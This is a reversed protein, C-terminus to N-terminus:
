SANSNSGGNKLRSLFDSTKKVINFFFKSGSNYIKNHLLSAEYVNNIKCKDGDIYIGQLRKRIKVKLANLRVKYEPVRKVMGLLEDINLNNKEAIKKIGDMEKKHLEAEQYLSQNIATSLILRMDPHYKKESVLGCDVTQLASEAVIIAFLSPIFELKHHFPIPPAEALFTNFNAKLTKDKSFLAAGNSQSSSGAISFPKSSYIYDSVQSAVALGSYVDPIMSHFFKGGSLAKIKNILGVDVFGAYLWPNTSYHEKYSAVAAFNTLGNKISIGDRMLVFLEHKHFPNNPWFYNSQYWCVAKSPNQNLLDNIDKVAGPLFGDDDGLVSVYGGDAHSLGFEWNDTMSLRKGTNVYKIRPDNFSFVVEKTHDDSFNDSVIIELNDYDQTSTEGTVRFYIPRGQQLYDLNWKKRDSGYKELHAFLAKLGDDGLTVGVPFTSRAKGGATFDNKVVDVTFTEVWPNQTKGDIGYQAFQFYRSDSSFGLNKFM